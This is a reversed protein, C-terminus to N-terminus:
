EPKTSPLYDQRAVLRGCTCGQFPLDFCYPFLVHTKCYFASQDAEKPVSSVGAFVAHLCLGGVPGPEGVRKPNDSGLAGSGAVLVFMLYWVDFM